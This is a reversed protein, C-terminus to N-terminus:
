LTAAFTIAVNALATDASALSLYLSDGIAFSVASSFTLTPSTAGAAFVMSGIDTVTAGSKKFITFTTTAAAAVLSRATTGSLGAPLSFARNATFVMTVGSPAVGVYSMGIDYLHAAWSGDGRLYNAASPTGSGLRAAPVTGTSINNANLATIAAGAGSLNTAALTSTAANFTLNPSFATTGVASQYPIQNTAGGAINTPSPPTNWTGDGRLYTTSNATGTGLRITPVIGASLNAANLNTLASGNGSFNPAALIGTDSTFTLSSSFATVDVGSQYPIQNVLGGALSASSVATVSSWLGDGRLYTSTSATGSGLRATGVTGSTLNSANLATLNTGAGSFGTATLLSGDWTLSASGTFQGSSNFQVQSSAGGPVGAPITAWAGDGRLFRTGDPAGSGLRAPSIVGSAINNGALGTLLAGNGQLATAALIGSTPNFTLGSSFSTTNAALQFPVQNATGGSINGTSAPMPSWTGDGRLYTSTDATGSGLRATAVKGSTLNTANLASLLTGVGSFVGTINPAALTGTSKDWTFSVDAALVGADNYQVQTSAGAVNQSLPQWSVVSGDTKLIKGANGGQSPLLAALATNPTTGGTGGNAVSLTGGLTMTGAVTIPGGSVTLGTAGGSLGVSTVTGGTGEVLFANYTTGDNTFEWRDVSENWRIATPPLAGRVVTISSSNVPSGTFGYNLTINPNKINLTTGTAELTSGISLSGGVTANNSINASKFSVDSTIEVPQGINIAGSTIHVGVGATYSFGLSNPDSWVVDVGNNTLIFGSSTLSFAPLLNHRAELASTAGTGGNALALAGSMVFTGASTIPGGTFSLGTPGGDINVSTVSGASATTWATRSGDSSLIKGAMGIQSPLLNNIADDATEGGTGGNAIALTGGVTIDGASTIPGGTFTLGTAAGKIDVSSVTGAVNGWNAVGNMSMLIKNNTGESQAPLLNALASPADAAGTGGHLISLRGGMRLLGSSTIPGDRFTFGTDTPDIDVSTVSGASATTWVVATGDTGLIKGANGVQSPVLANIAEETTIAGTGGHAVTLVGDLTFTGSQTIPSGDVVFGTTGPDLAISTVTGGGAPTAWAVNAGDTTLFMGPTGDVPFPPLPSVWEVGGPTVTLVKNENGDYSPLLNRRADVTTSAGTGGHLVTLVGDLTISGVGTIEKALANPPVLDDGGVINLGSTVNKTIEIRSVTGAVPGWYPPNLEGGSMMLQGPEGKPMNVLTGDGKSLQLHDVNGKADAVVSDLLTGTLTLGIGAYYVSGPMVTWSLNGAGDTTLAAGLHDTQSPLLAATLDALTTVGTGGNQVNLVGSATFTGITTVPGGDFVLGTVGGLVNVSTVTGGSVQPPEWTPIGVENYTLVRRATGDPIRLFGGNGDSLQVAYVGPGGDSRGASASIVNDVTITIGTGATYTVGSGGGAASIVGDVITIGTGATYTPVTTVFPYYITGDNTFEWVDTTENWRIATDPLGASDPLGRHATIVANMTPAGVQVANLTLNTGVSLDATTIVTNFHTDATTAVNQGISITNSSITVGTGATYTGGGSHADVYQKTAAELPNVPDDSLVIAGTMTGGTLSLKGNLAVQLGTINGIAHTHAAFARINIDAQLADLAPQLDIVESIPHQHEYPAIQLNALEDQLVVIDATAAELEQLQAVTMLGRQSTSADPVAINIVREGLGNITDTVHVPTQGTVLLDNTGVQYVQTGSEADIDVMITNHNKIIGIRYNMLGPQRQTTLQGFSDSYVPSGPSASWDWQDYMVEGDIAMSGTEATALADLCIGVPPRNPNLSPDSSALKITDEASFYVISMRPISEGARVPVVHSIPQVLVGSTGATTQLRIDDGDTLFEGNLTSKRLPQLMSDLMIYGPSSPVNLNIQSGYQFQVLADVNGNVAHGAFLRIKVLWKNTATNWVKMLMTNLDFWHQDNQPNAPEVLSNVPILTTTGYSVAATLQDIDWYLYTTIPHTIAWATPNAGEFKVLYDSGGHAVAIITPTPSVNHAVYGATTSRLLYNPANNYQQYKVLGHRFNLRM